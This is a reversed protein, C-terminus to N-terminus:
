HRRFMRPLVNLLSRVNQSQEQTFSRTGSTGYVYVKPSNNDRAESMITGDENLTFTLKSTDNYSEVEGNENETETVTFGTPLLATGKGLLGACAIPGSFDGLLGIEDAVYFSFQRFKNEQNGYDFVAKINTTLSYSQGGRTGSEKSDINFSMLNGNSYNCTFTATGTYTVRGYDEEYYSGNGSATGKALQGDGNYSLNYVTSQIESLGSYEEDFKLEIKSIYGNGNFSLTAFNIQVGESELLMKNGNIVTKFGYNDGISVLRGSGDYEMAWEGVKTVRLSSVASSGSGSGGNM